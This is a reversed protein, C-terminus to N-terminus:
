MTKKTNKQHNIVNSLIKMQTRALENWCSCFYDKDSELQKDNSQVRWKKLRLASTSSLTINLIPIRAASLDLDLFPRLCVEKAKNHNGTIFCFYKFIRLPINQDIKWSLTLSAPVHCPEFEHIWKEM